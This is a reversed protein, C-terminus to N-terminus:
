LFQTPDVAAVGDDQDGLRDGTFTCFKHTLWEVGEHEDASFHSDTWWDPAEQGVLPIHLGDGSPSREIYADANIFSELSPL